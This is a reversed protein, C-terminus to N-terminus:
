NCKPSLSSDLGFFINKYLVTNKENQLISYIM